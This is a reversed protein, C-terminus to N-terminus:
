FRGDNFWEEYKSFDWPHGIIDKKINIQGTRQRVLIFKWNGVQELHPNNKVLASVQTLNLDPIKLIRLKKMSSAFHEIATIPLSIKCRCPLNHFEKLETLNTLGSSDLRLGRRELRRLNLNIHGLKCRCPLILFGQLETLNTLGSPELRLGSMELHRLNNMDIIWTMASNYFGKGNEVKLYTLTDKRKEVVSMVKASDTDDPEHRAPTITLHKLMTCRSVLERCAWTSKRIAEYKLILETWLSPDRTVHKLGQCTQSLSVLDSKLLFSFIILLVEDPLNTLNAKIEAEYQLPNVDSGM